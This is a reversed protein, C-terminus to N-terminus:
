QQNMQQNQAQQLVSGNFARDFFKIGNENMPNAYAPKGNELWVYYKCDNRFYFMCEEVINGNISFVMNGDHQKCNPHLNTGIPDMNVLSTRIAEQNDMNMSIPLELFIYDLHTAQEWLRILREEPLSPLSTQVAAKAKPKEANASQSGKEGSCQSFLMIILIPLAIWYYKM